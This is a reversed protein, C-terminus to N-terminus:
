SSQITRQVILEIFFRPIIGAKKNLAVILLEAHHVM